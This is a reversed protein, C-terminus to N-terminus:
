VITKVVELKEIQSDTLESEKESIRDFVMSQFIAEHKDVRLAHNSKSLPAATLLYEQYEHCLLEVLACDDVDGSGFKPADM